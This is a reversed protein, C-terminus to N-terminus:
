KFIKLKKLAQQYKHANINHEALTKAFNHYGSFDEKACFFIYRHKEYNLVADISSISPICIPGPPLGKNIYTNYPSKIQLHKKLVRKITFDNAAFIVTPDAQLPIGKNLRNIYVGAITPKEKNKNTEQEVISALTSVQSQSLNINIAKQKRESTWFKKYETAMRKIFDNASTNWYFEYTNPIFMSIFTYKNFGYKTIIENSKFLNIIKLSDFELNKSVKGALQEITRINNFTVKVPKQDGSRLLNVLENNNINNKIIYRGPKINNKYHKKEAVWDFSNIDLVINLKELDNKVNQYTYDSYIYFYKSPTNISVNSKYIIKYYDYFKYIGISVLILFILLILKLVKHKKQKAM